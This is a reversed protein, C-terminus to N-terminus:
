RKELVEILKEVDVKEIESVGVELNNFMKNTRANGSVYVEQGLFENRFEEFKEPNKLEQENSIKNIQDSFMVLRINETGDDIVFNILSREKPVVKGHEACVFGEADQIAKKGCEPCVNFFRPAFIQVVIGRIKISQGPQVEEITKESFSKEIKVNEIKVNAKKIESFGSLHVEGDRMSGNIIEVADGQKIEHSEFLSIHNTDWLVIRLSGTEDAAFFNLVKGRKGNREFERVPFLNIIKVIFHVKKMGPMLESVKLQAEEFNVNLEAAIIQAAGEKSILGSLKAKKAEIRREIEGKELGSSKAIREILLEYNDM